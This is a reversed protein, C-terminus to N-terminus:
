NGLDVKRKRINLNYPTSVHRDAKFYAVFDFLGSRTDIFNFRKLVSLKKRETCIAIYRQSVVKTWTATSVFTCHTNLGLFSSYVYRNFTISDREGVVGDNEVHWLRTSIYKVVNPFSCSKDECDM